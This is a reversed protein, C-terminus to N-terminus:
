IELAVWDLGYSRRLGHLLGIPQQAALGPQAKHESLGFALGFAYRALRAAEGSARDPPTDHIGANSRLTRRGKKSLTEFRKDGPECFELLESVPYTSFLITM